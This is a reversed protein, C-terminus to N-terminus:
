GREKLVRRVQALHRRSIEPGRGIGRLSVYCRGESDKELGELAELSVLANRHIRLLREGYEEELQKLSEELLEERGHLYATVYKNDAQFHTIENVPILHLGGHKRVTLYRHGEGVETQEAAAPSLRQVRQLAQELREKRVPKVLYDIAEAEFAELAHESYATTFIVAPPQPLRALERAAEMGDMGPMRIDLLLVDPLLAQQAELAARGDAAEGVVETGELEELLRRLRARAPAEDDVILVRM